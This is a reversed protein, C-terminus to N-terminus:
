ATGASHPTHRLWQCPSKFRPPRRRRRPLGLPIRPPRRRRPPPRRRRPPRSRKTAWRTSALEGRPLWCAAHTSRAGWQADQPRGRLALATPRSAHTYVTGFALVCNTGARSRLNHRWVNQKQAAATPSAMSLARCVLQICIHAHLLKPMATENFYAFSCDHKVNAPAYAGFEAGALRRSGRRFPRHSLM